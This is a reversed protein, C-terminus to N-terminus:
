KDSAVSKPRAGPAADSHSPAFGLWVSLALVTVLVPLVYRLPFVRQESNMGIEETYNRKIMNTTTTGDSVGGARRLPNLLLRVAGAVRAGFSRKEPLPAAVRPPNM